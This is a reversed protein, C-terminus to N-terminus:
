RPLAQGRFTWKFPQALTQNYMFEGSAQMM